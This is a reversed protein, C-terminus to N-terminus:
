RSENVREINAANATGVLTMAAGAILAIRTGRSLHADEVKLPIQARPRVQELQIPRHDRTDGRDRLPRTM